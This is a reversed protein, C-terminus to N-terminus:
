FSMEVEAEMSKQDQQRATDARSSAERERHQAALPETEASSEPFGRAFASSSEASSVSKKDASLGDLTAQLSSELRNEKAAGNFSGERKFDSSTGSEPAPSDNSYASKTMALISSVEGLSGRESGAQQSAIYGQVNRVDKESAENVKSILNKFEASDHFEVVKEAKASVEPILIDAKVEEYAKKIEEPSAKQAILTKLETLGQAIGPEKAAVRTSIAEISSKLKEPDKGNHEMAVEMGQFVSSTNKLAAVSDAMASNTKEILTVESPSMGKTTELGKFDYRGLSGGLDVASLAKKDDSLLGEANAQTAQKYEEVASSFVEANVAVGAWGKMKDFSATADATAIESPAGYKQDVLNNAFLAAQQNLASVGERMDDQKIKDASPGQNSEVYSPGVLPARSVHDIVEPTLPENFTTQQTADPGPLQVNEKFANYAEAGIAEKVRDIFGERAEATLLSAGSSVQINTGSESKLPIADLAEKLWTAQANIESPM